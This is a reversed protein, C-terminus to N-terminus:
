WEIVLRVTLLQKWAKHCLQFPGPVAKHKFIGFLAHRAGYNLIHRGHATRQLQDAIQRCRFPKSFSPSQFPARCWISRCRASQCAGSFSRCASPVAFRADVLDRVNLIISEIGADLVYDGLSSTCTGDAFTRYWRRHMAPHTRLFCAACENAARCEM